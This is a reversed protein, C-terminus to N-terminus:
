AVAPTLKDAEERLRAAKLENVAKELIAIEGAPRNKSKSLTLKQSLRRMTESTPSDDADLIVTLCDLEIQNEAQTKLLETLEKKKLELQKRKEQEM